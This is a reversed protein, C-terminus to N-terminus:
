PESGPSTENSRIAKPGEILASFPAADTRLILRTKSNIITDLTDLSRLLSYLQPASAYAKAYIEAAKATSDAEIESAKVSADADMIRADREAASRIEAAQRNGVATRETAITQREARMRDLTADFTVAPLTVSEIGLQVINVGYTALLQDQIQDRVKSEFDDIKVKSADTNILNSLNFDSAATELASGIFSRIQAAAEDPDNRVARVYRQIDTPDAKVQWGVYAQVIIRLGDKTGVDQLGSSTTRLRLDVPNASEFPTPLRWGLGPETLTRQPNGFRTIVVAEGAHVQILCASAAAICVLLGGLVARMWLVSNGGGGKGTGPDSAGSQEIPGDDAGHPHHHHHDHSHESTSM